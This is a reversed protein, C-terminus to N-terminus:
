KDYNLVQKVHMLSMMMSKFINQCIKDTHVKHYSSHLAMKANNGLQSYHLNKLIKSQFM